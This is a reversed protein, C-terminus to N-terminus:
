RLTVSPDYSKIPGTGPKKWRYNVEEEQSDISVLRSDDASRIIDNPHSPDNSIQTWDLTPADLINPLLRQLEEKTHPSATTATKAINGQSDLGLSASKYILNGNSDEVISVEFNLDARPRITILQQGQALPDIRRNSLATIQNPDIGQSKLYDLNMLEMASKIDQIEQPSLTPTQSERSNPSPPRFPAIVIPTGVPKPMEHSSKDLGIVGKMAERVNPNQAAAFIGLTIGLTTAAFDLHHNQIFRAFQKIKRGLINGTVRNARDLAEDATIKPPEEQHEPTQNM